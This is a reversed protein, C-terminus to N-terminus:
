EVLIFVEAHGRPTNQSKYTISISIQKGDELLIEYVPHDELMSTILIDWIGGLLLISLLYYIAPKKYIQHLQRSVAKTM